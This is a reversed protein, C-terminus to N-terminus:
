CQVCGIPHQLVMSYVSMLVLFSLALICCCVHHLSWGCPQVVGMVVLLLGAGACRLVGLWMSCLLGHQWSQATTCGRSCVHAWHLVPLQLVPRHPWTLPTTTTGATRAFQGEGVGTHGQQHAM